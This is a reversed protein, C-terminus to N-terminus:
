INVDFNRINKDSAKLNMGVIMAQRTYLNIEKSINGNLVDDYKSTKDTLGSFINGVPNISDINLKNFKQTQAGKSTVNFGFGSNLNYNESM